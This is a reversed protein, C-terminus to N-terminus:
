EVSNPRHSPNGCRFSFTVANSTSLHSDTWSVEVINSSYGTLFNRGGVSIRRGSGGL